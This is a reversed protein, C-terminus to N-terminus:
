QSGGDVVQAALEFGTLTRVEDTAFDIFTIRGDPHEQSVYGRGAGAVIGAAIPLSGLPFADVQLSPMHAVVFGYTRSAEDGIAVLAQEGNPALAIAIAPADLGVIKPPLSAGIPVVSV